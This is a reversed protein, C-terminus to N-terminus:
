TPVIRRIQSPMKRELTFLSLLFDFHNQMGFRKECAHIGFHRSICTPTHTGGVKRLLSSKWLHAVHHVLPKERGQHEHEDIRPVSTVHHISNCQVRFLLGDVSASLPSLAYSLVADASKRRYKENLNKHAHYYFRIETNHSRYWIHMGASKQKKASLHHGIRGNGVGTGTCMYM